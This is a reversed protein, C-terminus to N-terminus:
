DTQCKESITHSKGGYTEVTIDSRKECIPCFPDMCCLFHVNKEWIINAFCAPCLSHNCDAFLLRRENTTNCKDCRYMIYDLISKAAHVIFLKISRSRYVIESHRNCLCNNIIM